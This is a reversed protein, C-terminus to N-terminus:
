SLVLQPNVLFIISIYFSIVLFLGSVLVITKLKWGADQGNGNKFGMAYLAISATCGFFPTAFLYPEEMLNRNGSLVAYLTAAGLVVMTILYPPKLWILKGELPQPKSGSQISVSEKRGLWYQVGLAVGWITGQVIPYQELSASNCMFFYMILESIKQIKSRKPGIFWTLVALLGVGVFDVVADTLTSPGIGAFYPRFDSRWWYELLIVWFFGSFNILVKKFDIEKNGLVM